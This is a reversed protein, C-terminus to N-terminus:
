DGVHDTRGHPAAAGFRGEIADLTRGFDRRAGWDRRALPALLLESGTAVEGVLARVRRHPFQFTVVLGLVLLISAAFLIPIGPNYAVQLVTARRERLFSVNLGGMTGTDGQAIVGGVGIKDNTRLDRTQAYLEGPRLKVGNIEPTDDVKLNPYVLELRKGQAPLEVIAAPADMNSMSRFAFPVGDEFVVTGAEDTVRLAAAQTFSAQYFTVGQYTLPDNVTVGKRAVEREGDYLVLDSRYELATGIETYDDVFRDLGIRLDTGRGVDRVSAEPVAFALERFGRESGVIGGVLILILALHFPFTGLRAFRHKDAYVHVEPGRRETLVRYRRGRLVRVLEEAATAPAEASRLAVAPEAAQFFQRTTPVTPRAIARWIGPVRNLTCVVIAVAILALTASFILSHFVDFAYWRTVLPDLAPVYRPIQAPIVSGKLTGILVLVALFVIEYMAARVSCFFRWIRDVVAVPLPRELRRPRDTALQAM